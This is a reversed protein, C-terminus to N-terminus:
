QDRVGDREGGVRGDGTEDRAVKKEGDGERDGGLGWKGWGRRMQGGGRGNESNQQGKREEKDEQRM